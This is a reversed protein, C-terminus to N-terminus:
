SNLGIKRLGPAPRRADHRLDSVPPTSARPELRRDNWAVIRQLVAGPARSLCLDHKAPAGPTSSPSCSCRVPTTQKLACEANPAVLTPLLLMRRPQRGRPVPAPENGVPGLKRLVKDNVRNVAASAMLCNAACPNESIHQRQSCWPRPASGCRSGAAGTSLALGWFFDWFGVGDEGVDLGFILGTFAYRDYSQAHVALRRDVDAFVGAAAHGHRCCPRQGRCPTCSFYVGNPITFSSVPSSCKVKPREAFVLSKM